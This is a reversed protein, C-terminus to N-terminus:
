HFVKQLEEKKLIGQYTSIKNEEDVFVWFPYAPIQRGALEYALSHLGQTGNAVYQYTKGLFNISKKYKEPNITIFHVKDWFGDPLKQMDKKQIQCIGCWDTSFLIVVPKKERKQLEEIEEFTKREIQSFGLLSFFMLIFLVRLKNM